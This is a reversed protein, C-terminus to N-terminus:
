RSYNCASANVHQAAQNWIYKYLAPNTQKLQRAQTELSDDTSQTESQTQAQGTNTELNDRVFADEKSLSEEPAIGSSPEGMSSESVVPMLDGSDVRIYAITDPPLNKILEIDTTSPLEATTGSGTDENDTVPVKFHHIKHRRHNKLKPSSKAIVVVEDLRVEKISKEKVDKMIQADIAAGQVSDDYLRQQQEAILRAEDLSQNLQDNTPPLKEKDVNYVKHSSAMLNNQAYEEGVKMSLFTMGVFAILAFLTTMIAKRAKILKLGFGGAAPTKESNKSM